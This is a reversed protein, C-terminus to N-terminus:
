PSAVFSRSGALNVNCVSPGDCRTPTPHALAQVWEIALGAPYHITNGVIQVPASPWIEANAMAPVDEWIIQANAADVLFDNAFLKVTDVTWSASKDSVVLESANAVKEFGAINAMPADNFWFAIPYCGSANTDYGGHSMLMPQGDFTATVDDGLTPCGGTEDVHMEINIKGNTVIELQSNPFAALPTSQTSSSTCAGLVAVLLIRKAMPQM